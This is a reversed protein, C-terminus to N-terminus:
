PATIEIHPIFRAANIVLSLIALVVSGILWKKYADVADVAVKNKELADLRLDIQKATDQQVAGKELAELRAVVMKGGDLAQSEVRTIRESVDTRLADRWTRTDIIFDTLKSTLGDLQASVVAIKTELTTEDKPSMIQTHGRRKWV